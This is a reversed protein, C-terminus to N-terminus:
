SVSATMTTEGSATQVWLTASGADKRTCLKITQGDFLPKVGRFGFGSPYAGGNQQRAIRLLYTAQLPGHVVLGPYYEEEICYTRDYHIRHGNFTIASYRFLLTPTAEIDVSTDAIPPAPPKGDSAAPKAELERYVLDQRESLVLGRGTAYDHRVTVFCLAGSRGQKLTVDEIRSRRTVTDGVMFRGSFQLDGGAWMRRPFPVPPLFGGRAPHGDPGLRNMPEIDPSLCWHIGVPAEAGTEANESEDLVAQLSAALRPTILDTSERETGIWSRLHDIDIDTM